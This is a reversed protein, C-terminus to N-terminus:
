GPDTLSRLEQEAERHGPSRELALRFFRRADATQGLQRQILGLYYPALPSLSDLDLAKRLEELAQKQARADDPCAAFLVWGYLARAEGESPDRSVVQELVPLAEEYRRAAVLQQARQFDGDAVAMRTMTHDDGGGAFRLALKEEYSRRRDDDALVERAVDLRERLRNALERVRRPQQAFRSEAWEEALRGHAELVAARQAGPTLHLVSFLDQQLTRQVRQSLDAELQGPATQTARPPAASSRLEVRGIKWAAFLLVRSGAPVQRVLTGPRLQGLFRRLPGEPLQRQLGAVQALVQCGGKPALLAEVHEPEMRGAGKIVLAELDVSEMPTALPLQYVGEEEWAKGQSWSFLELLKANAQDALAKELMREDIAGLDILAEGQLQEGLKARRSSEDLSAGSILGAHFLRRGLCEAVLNSRVARLEGRAFLLMKHQGQRQFHVVGTLEQEAASWILDAASRTALDFRQGARSGGKGILREIMGVLADTTFPKELYGQADKRAERAGDTHSRLVGSMVIVPLNEYGPDGRLQRLIAQGDLGPLVLDLLLLGPRARELEALVARGDEVLRVAYGSCDLQRALLRGLRVDDEAILVERALPM